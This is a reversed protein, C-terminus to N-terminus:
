HRYFWMVKANLGDYPMLAKDIDAQNFVDFYGLCVTICKKKYYCKGEIVSCGTTIM